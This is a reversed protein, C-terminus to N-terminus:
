SYPFAEGRLRKLQVILEGALATWRDRLLLFTIFGLKAGVYFLDNHPGDTYRILHFGEYKHFEIVLSKM